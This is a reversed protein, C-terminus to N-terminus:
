WTTPNHNVYNGMSHPHSLHPIDIKFLEQSSSDWSHIDMVKMSPICIILLSHPEKQKFLHGRRLCWWPAQKAHRWGDTGSLPKVHESLTSAFHCSCSDVYSLSLPGIELSVWKPKFVTWLFYCHRSVTVEMRWIVWHELRYLPSLIM